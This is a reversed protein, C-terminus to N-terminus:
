FWDPLLARFREYTKVHEEYEAVEEARGPRSAEYLMRLKAGMLVDAYHIDGDCPDCERLDDYAEQAGFLREHEEELTGEGIYEGCEIDSCVLADLAKDVAASDKPSLAEGDEDYWVLPKDWARDEQCVGFLWGITTHNDALCLAMINEHEVSQLNEPLYDGFLYYGDPDYYAYDYKITAM